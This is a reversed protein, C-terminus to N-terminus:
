ISLQEGYEFRASATVEYGESEPFKQRLVNVLSICDEKRTISRKHTAFLHEYNGRRTLRAVNIEFHNPVTTITRTM